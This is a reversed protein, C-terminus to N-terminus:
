DQVLVYAQSNREDIRWVGVIGDGDFDARALMRFSTIDAEIEWELKDMWPWDFGEAADTPDFYRGYQANFAQEIQYLQELGAELEIRQQEKVPIDTYKIIGILLLFFILVLDLVYRSAFLRGPM